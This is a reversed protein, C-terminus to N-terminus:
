TSSLLQHRRPFPQALAKATVQFCFANCMIAREQHPLVKQFDVKCSFSLWSGLCNIGSSLNGANIIDSAWTAGAPMGLFYGEAEKSALYSDALNIVRWAGYQHALQIVQCFLDRLKEHILSLSRPANEAYIICLLDEVLGPRAHVPVVAQFRKLEQDYGLLDVDEFEKMLVQSHVPYEYTQDEEKIQLIMDMSDQVGLRLQPGYATAQLADRIRENFAVQLPM